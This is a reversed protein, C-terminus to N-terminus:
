KEVGEIPVFPDAPVDAEGTMYKRTTKLREILVDLSDTNEFILAVPIDEMHIKPNEHKVFTGIPSPEQPVLSVLGDALDSMLGSGILIDGRGFRVQITKDTKVIPM